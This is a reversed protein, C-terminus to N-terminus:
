PTATPPDALAAKPKYGSWAFWYAVHGSLRRLSAGSGDTLATETEEWDRGDARLRGGDREFTLGDSAYARVTRTKADGILVVSLDGIKDNIVMRDQFYKVPWAKEHGGDRVAFVYDKPKLRKDRTQTPFMLDPSAFYTGYPLGPEYPRFYGTELSLVRTKPHRERWKRWSTITVPRVKLEIGSGTLKGTVPRGTFQNWLSHTERDFMLKNSRYLMGSSGFVFPKDRGDVKTEFLIGSACLTCYALAVPVGGITDNFMEHWDLIRLPYARADGNISVGFVLEDETLYDAADAAILKPNDLAPIGDKRVGGWTIEELRIEHPMDPYLFVRFNPDISAFVDAKFAAFGLFPKLEPHAEQWLMWDRWTSHDAGAGTLHRLADNILTEDEDIYRHAQILAPVVDKEGRDKLAAIAAHRIDSDRHFLHRAATLVAAAQLTEKSISQEVRITSSSEQEALAPPAILAITLLAASIPTRM